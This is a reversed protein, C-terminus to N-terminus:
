MVRKCDLYNKVEQMPKNNLNKSIINIFSLLFKARNEAAKESSFLPQFVAQEQIKDSDINDNNM